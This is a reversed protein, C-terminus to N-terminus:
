SCLPFPAAQILDMVRPWKKEQYLWYCEPEAVPCIFLNRLAESYLWCKLMSHVHVSREWLSSILLFCLISRLSQPMQLLWRRSDWRWGETWNELGPRQGSEIKKLCWLWQLCFVFCFRFCLPDIWVLLQCDNGLFNQKVEVAVEGEGCRVAVSAAPVPVRQESKVLM